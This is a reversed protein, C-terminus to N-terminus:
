RYKLDMVEFNYVSAYMGALLVPFLILIYTYINFRGFPGLTSLIDDVTVENNQKKEPDMKFVLNLDSNLFFFVFLPRYNILFICLFLNTEYNYIENSYLVARASRDGSRYHARSMRNIAKITRNLFM